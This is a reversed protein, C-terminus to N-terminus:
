EKAGWRIDAKPLIDYCGRSRRIFLKRNYRDDRDVENKSLISNVYQRKRRYEALIGEPMEKIFEMFDDMFLGRKSIVEDPAFVDLRIANLFNALFFEMSKRSIFYLKGDYRCQGATPALQDYWKKLFSLRLQQRDYGLMLHQLATRNLLDQQGLTAGQKLFFEIMSEKGFLCAIMLGTMGEKEERIDAGFRDIIRQVSKMNGNRVQTSYQKQAKAYEGLYQKAPGYNAEDRLRIMLQTRYRSRAFNFLKQIEKATYNGDSAFVKEILLEADETSIFEIGKLRARIAAAQETKGQLELRRAEEEWEQENSVQQEINVKTKTEVIGLLKLIDHKKTSEIIYLNKVARTFAVYLSNIYFKYAEQEKNAKDKARSFRMNEDLLDASSVGSSIERFEKDYDSIFNVLIINDYELGKAEQITFILPTKFYQSVKLKQAKDMVLVAFKTSNETRKNFEKKIK